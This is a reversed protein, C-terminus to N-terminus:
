NIEMFANPDFVAKASMLDQERLRPNYGEVSIDLNNKVAIAIIDALSLPLPGSPPGTFNQGTAAAAGADVLKLDLNFLARKEDGAAAATCVALLILSSFVSALAAVRWQM